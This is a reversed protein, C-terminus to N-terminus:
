QGHVGFGLTVCRRHLLSGGWRSEWQSHLRRLACGSKHDLATKEGSDGLWSYLPDLVVARVKGGERGAM